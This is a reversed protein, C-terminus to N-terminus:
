EKKERLELMRCARELEKVVTKFTDVSMNVSIGNGFFIVEVFEDGDNYKDTWTATEEGNYLDSNM